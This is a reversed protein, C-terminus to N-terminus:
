KGCTKPITFMQRVRFIKLFGIIHFPKRKGMKKRYYPFKSKGYKLSEVYKVGFINLFEYSPFEKLKGMGKRHDSFNIIRIDLIQISKRRLWLFDVVKSYRHKGMGKGYYPFESKGYKLFVM